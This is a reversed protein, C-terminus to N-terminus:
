RQLSSRLSAVQEEAARGAQLAAETLLFHKVHSEQKARLVEAIGQIGAFASALFALITQCVNTFLM